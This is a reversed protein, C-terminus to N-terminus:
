KIPSFTIIKVAYEKNGASKKDKVFPCNQSLTAHIQEYNDQVSFTYLMLPCFACRVARLEKLFFFGNRALQFPSLYSVFWDTFSNIRNVEDFFYTVPKNAHLQLVGSASSTNGDPLHTSENELYSQVEDSELYEIIKHIINAEKPHCNCTLTGNTKATVNEEDTQTKFNNDNTEDQMEEELYEKYSCNSQGCQCEM